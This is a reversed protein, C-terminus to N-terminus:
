RARVDTEILTSPKSFSLGIDRCIKRRNRDDVEKELVLGPSPHPAEVRRLLESIVHSPVLLELSQRRGGHRSFTNGCRFGRCFNLEFRTITWRRRLISRSHTETM